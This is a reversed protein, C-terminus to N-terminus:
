AHGELCRTRRRFAAPSSMAPRNVSRVEITMRPTRTRASEPSPPAM